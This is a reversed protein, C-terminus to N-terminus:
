AEGGVPAAVALGKQGASGDRDGNAGRGLRGLVAEVLRDGGGVAGLRWCRLRGRDVHPSHAGACMQRLVAVGVGGVDDGLFGRVLFYVVVGFLLLLYQWDPTATELKVKTRQVEPRGHKACVSPIGYGANPWHSPIEIVM